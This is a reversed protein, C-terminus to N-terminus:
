CRQIQREESDIQTSYPGWYEPHDKEYELLSAYVSVYWSVFSLDSPFSVSIITPPRVIIPEVPEDAM